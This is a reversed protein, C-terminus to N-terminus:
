MPLHAKNAVIGDIIAQPRAACGPVYVDVPIVKDIGGQVNYCDHFIGGSCACIGVAVVVKPEAQQEYIQKIVPAAQENVVGNGPLHRCAPTAPTSSASASWM